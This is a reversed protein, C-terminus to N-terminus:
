SGDHLLMDFLNRGCIAYMKGEELSLSIGNLVKKGEYYYFGINKAELISM